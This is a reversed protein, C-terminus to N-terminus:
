PHPWAAAVRGLPGALRPELAKVAGALAAGGILDTVYHEGLYVLALGLAAAYAWGAAAPGHGFERLNIASMVATAFHDSPMSAWPNAGIEHHRLPRRKGRLDRATEVVVRRVSGDMRGAEESAWWPPATPVLWYPPLTLDFTAALRGACRPYSAPRRLLVALLVAHPELEWLSYVATLVRDLATIRPPRRLREQLRQSPPTGAALAADARIPYDIRLAARQRAPQDHPVEFAIKYAWMQAAWFAARRVRGTGIAAATAAPGVAAVATSAWRPMGLRDRARGVALAAVAVTVIRWDVKPARRRLARATL